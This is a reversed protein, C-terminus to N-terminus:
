PEEQSVQLPAARLREALPAVDAVRTGNGAVRLLRVPHRGPGPSDLPASFPVLSESNKQPNYDLNVNAQQALASGCLLTASLTFLTTRM